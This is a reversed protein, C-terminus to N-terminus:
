KGTMNSAPKGAADGPIAKEEMPKKKLVIMQVSYAPLSLVEQFVASGSEKEEVPLFKCDAGCSSDVVFRQYSYGAGLNSVNVKIQRPSLLAKQAKDNLGQTEKLLDRVKNTLRLTTLDISKKLIRELKDSKIIKLLSKREAANLASINKSLYNRAIEPDIYNYVILIIAEDKRAAIVGSFEDSAGKAYMERGLYSLMRFVNYTAKPSGKYNKHESDFSFVGLNRVVGEKNNQFDELCFYVQSDIGSAFMNNLRSAIFSATVYSQEAREPLLNAERDFNWEDIILLTDREFNFYGLWDRILEVPSKKYITKSKEAGPDTSFGHWTIFNLPLHHNSCFKILEYILSKEPTVITNYDVNQFWWSVSPGGVPIYIKTEEKLEKIAEAVLRYLNLYEQKRGLFFSDLDPANWVEYWINYKKECSLYRVTNKVLSKFAKFDRPPSKKDLVRGMGFPTGFLDLIVIGGSQNIRRIVDEYNAILKAQAEKDNALQNIEWLNYQLRYTARFGIDQGWTDLVEKAALQQPWTNERSFGRGSLDINPKFIKPLPVTAQNADLSFELDVDQAFCQFAFNLVLLAFSFIFLKSNRNKIKLKQNKIEKM